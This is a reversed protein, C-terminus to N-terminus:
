EMVIRGLPLSILDATRQRTAMEVAATISSLYAPPLPIWKKELVHYMAAEQRDLALAFRAIRGLRFIDVLQTEKKGDLHIKQRNVEITNGYEAEVFLAAMLKQYKETLPRDFDTMVEDLREMRADREAKLFPVDEAVFTKLDIHLKELFPLMERTMRENENVQVTLAEVREQRQTRELDLYEHQQKLSQNEQVLMEYEAFLEQKEAEWTELAKQSKQRIEISQNVSSEVKDVTADAGWMPSPMGWLVVSLMSLGFGSLIRKVIVGMTM